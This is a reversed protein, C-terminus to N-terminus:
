RQILVSVALEAAVQRSWPDSPLSHNLLSVTGRSIKSDQRNSAMAEQRYM